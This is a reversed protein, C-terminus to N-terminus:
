RLWESVGRGLSLLNANMQQGDHLANIWAVRLNYHDAEASMVDFLSRKGLQQWQQLTFGRVQESDRLVAAVRAARDFASLTQEHVERVRFRRSELADERQLLAAQARKRAAESAPAVGPNVLPINVSVGLSLSGSRQDVGSVNNSGTGTSKSGGFAWSLQPKGGAEVAAAYQGMAAAQAALMAIDSSRAVESEILPLEPVATLVSALGNTGPLGDGVLRRLRVDVQRAQSQAQAMAIEAQQMSKRAQVLESARGRDARVISGLAEVLCAMKRVHQGYVQVHQRYRSRELALAVTNLAIQEQQSLQGLRASEALQTRWDTLRDTRGGDYLLKTVSLTGRAHLASSSTTSGSQTASPGLDASFGAHLAKAARAEDIDLLAAEALLRAAGVAQSRALADRVLGQLVLRPEPPPLASTTVDAAPTVEDEDVCAAFVPSSLALGLCLGLSLCLHTRRRPRSLSM